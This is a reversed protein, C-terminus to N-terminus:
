MANDAPATRLDEFGSSFQQEARGAVIFSSVDCAISLIIGTSPLSGRQVTNAKVYVQVM